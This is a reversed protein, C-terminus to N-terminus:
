RFNILNFLLYSFMHLGAIFESALLAQSIIIVQPFFVTLTLINFLIIISKNANTQSLTKSIISFIYSLILFFVLILTFIEKPNWKEYIVLKNFTKLLNISWYKSLFTFTEKTEWSWGHGWAMEAWKSGTVICISLAIISLLSFKITINPVIENRITYILCILFSSLISSYAIFGSISHFHLYRSKLIPVMPNSTLKYLYFGITATVLFFFTLIGIYNYKVNANM